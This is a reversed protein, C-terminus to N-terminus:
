KAEFTAEAQELRDQWSEYADRLDQSDMRGVFPAFANFTQRDAEVYQRDLSACGVLLLSSVLALLNLKM